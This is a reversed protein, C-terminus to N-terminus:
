KTSCSVRYSDIVTQLADRTEFHNELYFLFVCPVSNGQVQVVAMVLRFELNMVAKSVERSEYVM